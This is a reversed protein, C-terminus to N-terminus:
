RLIAFFHSFIGFHFCFLFVGVGFVRITFDVVQVLLLFCCALSLFFHFDVSYCVSFLFLFRVVSYFFMGAGFPILVGVVRAEEDTMDM